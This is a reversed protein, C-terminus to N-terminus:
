RRKRTKSKRNSHKKTKSHKNTKKKKLLHYGIYAAGLAVSSIAATQIKGENGEYYNKKLNQFWGEKAKEEAKTGKEDATTGKDEAKTEKEEDDNKNEDKNDANEAENQLEVNKVEKTDAKGSTKTGSDNENNQNVSTKSELNANEAPKQENVYSEILEVISNNDKNKNVNKKAISLATMDSKNKITFDANNKLLTDIVALHGNYAALMLPTKGNFSNALNINANNKLLLEVVDKHGNEAALMLPTSYGSNALNIDANNKLLIEVVDKHGNSAAVILPTSYGSNTKNIKANNKLLLEVVDKHGNEAAVILPTNFKNNNQQDVEAGHELLFEVIKLNGAISAILLPSLENGDKDRVNNDIDTKDSLFRKVDNLKGNEIAEAITKSQPIKAEKDKAEKEASKQEEKAKEAAEKEKADKEVKEKADKEAKEKADKEAAKPEKEEKAKKAAKIVDTTKMTSNALKEVFSSPVEQSSENRVSKLIPQNVRIAFSPSHSSSNVRVRVKGDNQKLTSGDSIFWVSDDPIQEVPTDKRVITYAIGSLKKREDQYHIWWYNINRDEIYELFINHNSPIRYEITDGTKYQKFEVKDNLLTQTCNKIGTIVITSM